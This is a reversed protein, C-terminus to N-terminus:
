YDNHKNILPLAIKIKKKNFYFLLLIKLLQFKKKEIMDLFMKLKM